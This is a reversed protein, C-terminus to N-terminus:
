GGRANTPDTYNADPNFEDILSESLVIEVRRNVQQTVDSGARPNIPESDACAELRFLEKRLGLEETLFLMIAEARAYSLEYLNKYKSAPSLRKADAHGRIDIRNKRGGILKAIARLEDKTADNLKASEREFTSSGGLTFILGDRVTKVQTNKGQAGEVDSQSVENEKEHGMNAKEIAMIITQLSPADLPIKGGSGDQFGFAEMVSQAMVTYEEDKKLESFAALLIFFCLLLTMMDGYTVIWDPVGEPCPESKCKCKSM